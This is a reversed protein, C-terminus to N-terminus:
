VLVWFLWGYVVVVAAVCGAVALWPRGMDGV